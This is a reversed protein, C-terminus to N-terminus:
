DISEISKSKSQEIARLIKDFDFNDVLKQLADSLDSHEPPIQEFLVSLLESDLSTAAQEIQEIWRDSMVQLRDGTLKFQKKTPPVTTQYVYRVGLHQAIKDFIINEAFPKGVFDDCGSARFLSREEESTSATLAVIAPSSTLSRSKIQETAEYGNMVPMRLDMWIMHPQWRLWEDVAERGNVAERVKFGVRELLQVMIKRNTKSDDVILIRYDPQNLELGSIERPVSNVQLDQNTAIEARVDLRITSQPEGDKRHVTIDGGMLQALKRSIPLSLSSVKYSKRQAQIAPDFLGPINEPAIVLGPEVELFINLQGVKPTAYGQSNCSVKLNVIKTQSSRMSYDLLNLIIQRLRPEDLCIYQPLEKGRIVTFTIDRELAQFKLNQELSDLWFYFDFSRRELSLRDTEIKSLDVLENIISLLRKGSRNIIALNERQSRDSLSHQMIQTFGLIANLPSRLEHSLDAVLTSKIYNGDPSSLEDGDDTSRQPAIAEQHLGLYREAYQEHSYSRAEGLQGGKALKMAKLSENAVIEPNQATGASSNRMSHELWLCILIGLITTALLYSLYRIRLKNQESQQILAVVQLQERLQRDSQNDFLPAVQGLIKTRATVLSFNQIQRENSSSVLQSKPLSYSSAVISGNKVLAIEDFPTKSKLQQLSNKLKRDALQNSQSNIRELEELDASELYKNLDSLVSQSADNLTRDSKVEANKSLNRVAFYEVIGITVFVQLIFPILTIWRRSGRTIGFDKSEGGKRQQNLITFKM